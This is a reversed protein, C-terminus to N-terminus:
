RPWTPAPTPSASARAGSRRPPSSRRCCATRRSRPRGLAHDDPRRAPHGPRQRAAPAAVRGLEEFFIASQTITAGRGGFEVPWHVAAWGGDYLRRQWDRRWAYHADEDHQPEPGPDNAALWARLEDRFAQEPESFTLDM